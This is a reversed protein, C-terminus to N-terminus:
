EKFTHLPQIITSSNVSDSSAVGQFSLTERVIGLEYNM